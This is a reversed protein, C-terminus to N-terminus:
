SEIGGKEVKNKQLIAVGNKNVRDLRYISSDNIHLTNFQEFVEFLYSHSPHTIDDILVLGGPKLLPWVNKLDIMAGEASHDGDVLILDFEEKLKPILDKSDGNLFTVSENYGFELLMKVIHVDSGRGTGGYLGGWEDCLVLNKLDPANGLVVMLSCGENVGIELYSEIKRSTCIEKLALKHAYENM